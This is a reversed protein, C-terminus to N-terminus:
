SVSLGEILSAVGFTIFFGLTVLISLTILVKKKGKISLVLSILGLPITLLLLNGIAIGFFGPILLGFGITICIIPTISFLIKERQTNPESMNNGGSVFKGLHQGSWLGDYGVKKCWYIVM